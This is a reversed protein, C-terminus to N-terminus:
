SNIRTTSNLFTKASAWRLTNDSSALPRNGAFFLRLNKLPPLTYKAFNQWVKVGGGDRFITPRFKQRVWCVSINEAPRRRGGGPPVTLCPLYPLCRNTFLIYCALCPLHTHTINNCYPLLVYANDVQLVQRMRCAIAADEVCVLRM